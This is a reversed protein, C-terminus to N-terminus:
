TARQKVFRKIGEELKNQGERSEAGIPQAVEPLSELHVAAPVVIKELDLESGVYLHLFGKGEHTVSIEFSRGASVPTLYLILPQQSLGGYIKLVENFTTVDGAFQFRASPGLPGIMGSVRSRHNIVGDLGKSWADCHLPETKHLAIMARALPGFLLASEMTALLIVPKM